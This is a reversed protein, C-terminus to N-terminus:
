SFPIPDTFVCDFEVETTFLVDSAAGTNHNEGWVHAVVLQGPNASATCFFQNDDLIDPKDVFKGIDIGLEFYHRDPNAYGVDYTVLGTQIAAAASGLSTSNTTVSIGYVAPCTSVAYAADTQVLKVKIRAGICFCKSYFSMWKAFGTASAGGLASDPDYPSNLIVVALESYTSLPVNTGQAYAWVLTQRTHQAIGGVHQKLFDSRPIAPGVGIRTLAESGAGRQMGGKSMNRRRNRNKKIPM